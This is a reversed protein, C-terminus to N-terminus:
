RTITIVGENCGDLPLYKYGGDTTFELTYIGAPIDSPPKIILYSSDFDEYGKDVIEGEFSLSSDVFTVKEPCSYCRYTYLWPVIDVRIEEDYNYSSEEACFEIDSITIINSSDPLVRTKGDLAYVELEYDGAPINPPIEFAKISNYGDESNIPDHYYQRLKIGNLYVYSEFGGSSIKSIVQNGQYILLENEPVNNYSPTFIKYKGYIMLGELEYYSDHYKLFYTIEDGLDPLYGDYYFSITQDSIETIKFSGNETLGQDVGDEIRRQWISFADDLQPANEVNIQITDSSRTGPDVVIETTSLGTITFANYNFANEKLLLDFGSSEDFAIRLDHSGGELFPVPFQFVSDNETTIDSVETLGFKIYKIKQAKSLRLTLTDGEIGSDPTLSIISPPDPEPTPESSNDCTTLLFSISLFGLLQLQKM